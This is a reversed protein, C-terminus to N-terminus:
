NINITLKKGEQMKFKSNRESSFKNLFFLQCCITTKAFQFHFFHLDRSFIKKKFLKFRKPNECNIPDVKTKTQNARRSFDVSVQLVTMHPTTWHSTWLFEEPKINTM